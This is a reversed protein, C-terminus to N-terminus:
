AKTKKPSTITFEMDDMIMTTTGRLYKEIDIEIGEQLRRKHASVWHLLPKKRGTETVPLQRAFFLSKVMKEDIGFTIKAEFDHFAKKRTQVLWLYKQDATLSLAGPGLHSGYCEDYECVTSANYEKFKRTDITTWITSDKALTFYSVYALAVPIKEKKFDPMVVYTCKFNQYIQKQRLDVHVGRPLANIKSVVTYELASDKCWDTWVCSVNPIEDVGLDFSGYWYRRDHPVYIGTTMFVFPDLNKRADREGTIVNAEAAYKGDAKSLWDACAELGNYATDILDESDLL